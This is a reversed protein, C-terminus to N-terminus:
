LKESFSSFERAVGKICDVITIYSYSAKPMCVGTILRTEHRTSYENAKKYINEIGPRIHTKLHSNRTLIYDTIDESQTQLLTYLERIENIARDTFPLNSEIKRKIEGILKRIIIATLQLHPLLTVYKKEFENKNGKKVLEETFPLNSTLIWRLKTEAERLLTPNEAWFGQRLSELVVLLEKFIEYLKQNLENEEM